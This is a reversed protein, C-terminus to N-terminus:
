VLHFSKSASVQFTKLASQCSITNYPAQVNISIDAKNNGVFKNNFFIDATPPYVTIDLKATRLRLYDLETRESESMVKLEPFLDPREGEKMSLTNKIRNILANKLDTLELPDYKLFRVHRVDFPVEEEHQTLMIVNKKAAHALGLEYMVNPNRGSIDAIIIIANYISRTVDRIIINTGLRVEDGKWATLGVEEIAPKIAMEWQNKFERSFPMLVFSLRQKLQDDAM